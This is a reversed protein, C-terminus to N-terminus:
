EKLTESNSKRKGVKNMKRRGDVTVSESNRNVTRIGEKRGNYRHHIEAIVLFWQKMDRGEGNEIAKRKDRRGM